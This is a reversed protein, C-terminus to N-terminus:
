QQMRTNQTPTVECVNKICKVSDDVPFMSTFMKELSEGQQECKYYRDTIFSDITKRFQDNKTFAYSQPKTMNTTFRYIECDSDAMCKNLGSSQIFNNVTKKFANVECYSIIEQCQDINCIVKAPPIKLSDICTENIRYESEKNKKFQNNVTTYSTCNKKIYTCDNDTKCFNKCLNREVKLQIFHEQSLDLNSISFDACGNVMKREIGYANKFVDRVCESPSDKLDLMKKQEPLATYYKFVEKAVTCKVPEEGPLLLFEVLDNLNNRVVIRSLFNRDINQLYVTQDSQVNYNKLMPIIVNKFYDPNKELWKSVPYYSDFPLNSLSNMALHKVFFDVSEQTWLRKNRKGFLQKALPIPLLKLFQIDDAKIKLVEVWEFIHPSKEAMIDTLILKNKAFFDNLLASFDKLFIKDEPFKYYEFRYTSFLYQIACVSAENESNTKLVGSAYKLAIKSKYLDMSPALGANSSEKLIDESSINCKIKGISMSFPYINANQTQIFERNPIQNNALQDKRIQACSISKRQCKNEICKPSYCISGIGNWNSCEDTRFQMLYLELKTQYQNNVVITEDCVNKLTCDSDTKCSYACKSLESYAPIDKSNLLSKCTDAWLSFSLSCLVIAIIKIKMM